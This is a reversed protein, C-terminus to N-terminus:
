RKKSTAASNPIEPVSFRDLHQRLSAGYAKYIRNWKETQACQKTVTFLLERVQEIELHLEKIQNEASVLNEELEVALTSIQATTPRNPLTPIILNVEHLFLNSDSAGLKQMEEQSYAEKAAHYANEGISEVEALDESPERDVGLPFTSTDASVLNM